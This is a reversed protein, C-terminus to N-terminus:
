YAGAVKMLKFHKLKGTSPVHPGRCLDEFNGERYLSVDENSPISAIIEAKYHEGLSKFYAVAEDRPLVRRVVPEDKNALETMRKEIATLDEPTFGRSFSFDYYFGNDIVPGITVQAEPFLEKVAYALLHATSHRIVELGDADKATIIALSANHSITYSTDVVKGDVKGALAAKALGAGISAAVDAVTVPAPFERQSGDPLTIQVM